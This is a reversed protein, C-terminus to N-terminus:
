GASNIPGIHTAASAAVEAAINGTQTTASAVEVEEVLIPLYQVRLPAPFDAQTAVDVMVSGMPLTYVIAVAVGAGAAAALWPVPNAAVKFFLLKILEFATAEDM